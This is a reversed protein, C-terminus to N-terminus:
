PWLTSFNTGQCLQRLSLCIFLPVNGGKNQCLMSRANNNKLAMSPRPDPNRRATLLFWEARPWQGSALCINAIPIWILYYWCRARLAFICYLSADMWCSAVPSFIIGASLYIGIRRFSVRECHTHPTFYQPPLSLLFVSERARKKRRKETRAGGRAHQLYLLAAWQKLYLNWCLLTLQLIHFSKTAFISKLIDISELNSDASNKKDNKM